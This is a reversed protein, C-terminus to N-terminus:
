TTIEINDVCEESIGLFVAFEMRNKGLKEKAYKVKEAYSV